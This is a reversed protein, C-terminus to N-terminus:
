TCRPHNGAPVETPRSEAPSISVDGVSPNLTGVFAIALLPWFGTVHAFGLGTGLMLLTTALLAARASLRHAALGVALTLAASGLLTATAVAGVELPSLGIATLYAPLVVSVAGDAFGRLARAGILRPPDGGARASPFM